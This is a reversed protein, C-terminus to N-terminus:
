GAISSRRSGITSPWPAPARVTVRSRGGEGQDACRGAGPQQRGRQAVAEPDALPELMVLGVVQRQDDVARRADELDLDLGPALSHDGLARPPRWPDRVPEQFPDPVEGLNPAGPHDRLGDGGLGKPQELDVFGPEIAVVAGDQLRDRGLEGAPRDPERGQRRRDVLLLLRDLVDILGIQELLPQQLPGRAPAHDGLVPERM